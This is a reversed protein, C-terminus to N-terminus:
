VWIWRKLNGGGMLKIDLPLLFYLLARLSVLPKQLFFTVNDAYLVMKHEISDILLEYTGVQKRIMLELMEIVINFLLPFLRCGQLVGKQINLVKSSHGSYIIKATQEIYLM